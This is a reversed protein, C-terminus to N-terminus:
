FSFMLDREVGATVQVSSNMSVHVDSNESASDVSGCSPHSSTGLHFMYLVTYVSDQETDEIYDKDYYEFIILM